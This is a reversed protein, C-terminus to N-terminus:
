RLTVLELWHMILRYDWVLKGARRSSVHSVYNDYLAQLFHYRSNINHDYLSKFVDILGLTKCAQFARDSEECAMMPLGKMSYKHYECHNNTKVIFGNCTNNVWSETIVSEYRNLIENASTQDTSNVYHFSGNEGEITVSGALRKYPLVLEIAGGNDLTYHIGRPDKKTHRVLDFDFFSRGLALGHYLYGTNNMTVKKIPGICGTNVQQRLLSYQPFNMYDETVSVSAFTRLLPTFLSQKFGAFVPTDIVLHKDSCDTTELITKLVQPTASATISVVIVDTADLSRKDLQEIVPWGVTDSVKKAHKITRSWIGTVNFTSELSKLAPIFNTTIRHGSGIVLVNYTARDSHLLRKVPQKKELLQSKWANFPSVDVESNPVPTRAMQSM